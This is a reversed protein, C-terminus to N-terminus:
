EQQGELLGVVLANFLMTYGCTECNVSILPYVGGAGLVAGGHFTRIEAIEGGLGWQNNDCVPCARKGKWHEDLWANVKKVDVKHPQRIKTTM